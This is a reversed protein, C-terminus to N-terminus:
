GGGIQPLFHVESDPELEELFPDAIIEGDISVAPGSDLIEAMDPFSERLRRLLERITHAEIRVREQGGAVERLPAPLVM